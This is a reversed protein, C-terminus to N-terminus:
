NKKSLLSHITRSASKSVTLDLVSATSANNKVWTISNEAGKKSDYSESSRAIIEHNRDSKLIWYYKQQTDKKIKFTAM